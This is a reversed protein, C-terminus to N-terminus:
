GPGDAPQEATKREEEAIAQDDARQREAITRRGEPGMQEDNGPEDGREDDNM